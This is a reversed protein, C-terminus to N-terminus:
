SGIKSHHMDVSPFFSLLVLKNIGRNFVFLIGFFVHIGQAMVTRGVLLFAFEIAM